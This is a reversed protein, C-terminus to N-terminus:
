CVGTTELLTGSCATCTDQGGEFFNLLTNRSMRCDVSKGLYAPNAAQTVTMRVDCAGPTGGTLEYDFTVNYHTNEYTLTANNCSDLATRFCSLNSACDTAQGVAGGAPGGNKPIKGGIMLLFGLLAVLVVVTLIIFILLPKRSRRPRPQPLMMLQPAAPPEPEQSGPEPFPTPATPEPASPEPAGPAPNDDYDPM